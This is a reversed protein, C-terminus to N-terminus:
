RDVDGLVIDISALIVVADAIYANRMMIPLGMLNVFSPGRIKVRYPRDRGDSILYVGFEGRPNETRVYAEGKPPRLGKPLNSALIPGPTLGKAAQKVIRLSQRMEEMRVLYRDFCDGHVGVPVDFDLKDYVSYPEVRRIDYPVGCARLNPGSLGLDIADAASIAGIGQTRELLIENGTLLDDCEQVGQELVPILDNLSTDFNAPLDDKVGGVRFFNHMMRAGSVAEFLAQIRERDRFGYMFSTGFVGVDAGFASYFMLHSAIRSLELLIVRILEAREPPKVGMLKEISMVFAHESNFNALYDLRDFLTIIQRYMEGECLKETGRHLYGIVSEMDTIREGDVQLVMRFVGHTSPHQPGMNVMM